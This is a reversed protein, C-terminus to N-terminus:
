HEPLLLSPLREPDGDTPHPAPLGLISLMLPYIDTVHVMGTRTGAPIRPGVAYFIGRMEPMEPPWGHDGPTIKKQKQTTTIVSCGANAMVLLDPFRGGSEMKWAPPAETPLLARGCTWHGNITDRMLKARGPDTEEFHIFVYPGGEVSHTGALDIIRNLVLTPEPSDYGAMGHDSVLLVYIEKGHDLNEIGDLLLGLQADVRQIAELSEPSGPGYWHTYDDVEEFYLTILHPRTEPPESLWGLVQQVRVEGSIAADFAYWHSPRVGAVDAETGVFFYAASVMGQKEATVWIPEALYWQGDQVTSRDKYHYWREGDEHPFENAVIGHSAPLLGTAISYHNPFTLTPFAPELAEAKLGSAAMRDMAPTDQLDPFDWRFGDISVLVLYPKDLKGSANIAGSGGDTAPDGHAMAPGAMALLLGLVLRLFIGPTLIQKSSREAM